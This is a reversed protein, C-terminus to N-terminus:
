AGCVNQRVTVVIFYEYWHLQENTRYLDDLNHTGRVDRLAHAFRALSVTPGFNIELKHGNQLSM